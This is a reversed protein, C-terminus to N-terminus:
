KNIKQPELSVEAFLEMLQFNVTLKEMLYWPNWIVFFSLNHEISREYAHQTQGNSHEYPRFHKLSLAQTKAIVM